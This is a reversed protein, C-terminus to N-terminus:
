HRSRPRPHRSREHRTKHHRRKPRSRRPKYAKAHPSHPTPAVYAREWPQRVVTFSLSQTAVAGQAGEWVVSLSYGGPALPPPILVGGGALVGACESFRGGAATTLGEDVLHVGPIPLGGSQTLSWSVAHVQNAFYPVEGNLGRVYLLLQPGTPTGEPIGVVEQPAFPGELSVIEKPTAGNPGTPSVFAYFTPAQPEPSATSVGLCGESAEMGVNVIGAETFVPSYESFQHFPAWEWPSYDAGWYGNASLDRHVGASVPGEDENPCWSTALSQNLTMPPIGNAARQANLFNLAAQGEFIGEEIEHTTEGSAPATMLGFGIGLTILGALALTSLRSHPSSISM